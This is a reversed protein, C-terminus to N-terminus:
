GTFYPTHFQWRKLVAEEGAADGKSRDGESVPKMRVFDILFIISLGILIFLGAFPLVSYFPFLVIYFYNWKNKERNRIDLFCYLLLPLGAISLGGSPYFPLLSFCLAAGIIIWERYPGAHKDDTIIHKRLLLWMGWFATFAMIFVNLAFATFPSFIMFLWTIVNYGSNVFGSIQIGGIMNDIKTAPDLSMAKGSEALVKQQPVWADMVDAIKMHVQQGRFLYPALFLVLVLLSVLMLKWPQDKYRLLAIACAALMFCFAAPFLIVKFLLVCLLLMFGHIVLSFSIEKKDCPDPNVMEIAESAGPKERISEQEQHENGSNGVRKLLTRVLLALFGLGALIAGIYAMPVRFLHDFGNVAGSFVKDLVSQPLNVRFLGFLLFLSASAIFLLEPLPIRKLFRLVNKM